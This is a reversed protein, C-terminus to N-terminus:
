ITHVPCTHHHTQTRTHRARQSRRESIRISTTDTFFIFENAVILRGSDGAAAANQTVDLRLAYLM